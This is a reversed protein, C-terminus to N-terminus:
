YTPAPTFDNVTGVKGFAGGTGGNSYFQTSNGKFLYTQTGFAAAATAPNVPRGVGGSVSVFKSFNSAVQPDIYQGVWVQVDGFDVKNITAADASQAPIAVEEGSFSMSWGPITVSLADDALTNPVWQGSFQAHPMTTAGYSAFNCAASWQKDTGFAAPMDPSSATQTWVDGRLAGGLRGLYQGNIYCVAKGSSTVAGGAGRVSANTFDVALFVHIWKNPGLMASYTANPTYNTNPVTIGSSPTWVSGANSPPTVPSVYGNMDITDPVGVFYANLYNLNNNTNTNIAIYSPGSPKTSRTGWSFLPFWEGGLSAPNSTAARVWGVYTMKPSNSVASSAQSLYAM